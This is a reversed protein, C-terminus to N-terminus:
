NLNRKKELEKIATFVNITDLVATKSKASMDKCIHIEKRALPRLSDLEQVFGDKNKYSYANIGVVCYDKDPFVSGGIKNLSTFGPKKILIVKIENFDGAKIDPKHVTFYYCQINNIVTDIPEIYPSPLKQVVEASDFHFGDFKKWLKGTRIMNSPLDFTDFEQYFLHSFQMLYVSTTDIRITADITNAQENLKGNLYIGPNFEFLYDGFTILCHTYLVTKSTNIRYTKVNYSYYATESSKCSIM